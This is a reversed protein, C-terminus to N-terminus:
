NTSSGIRLGLLNMVVRNGVDRLDVAGSASIPTKWGSSSKSCGDLTTKFAFEASVLEAAVMTRANQLLMEDDLILMYADLIEAKIAADNRSVEDRLAAFEDRTLAV